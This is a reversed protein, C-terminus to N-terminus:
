KRDAKKEKNSNKEEKGGCGIMDLVGIYTNSILASLCYM